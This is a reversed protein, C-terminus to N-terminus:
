FKEITKGGEKILYAKGDFVITKTSSSNKEDEMYTIVKFSPVSMECGAPTRDPKKKPFDFSHIGGLTCHSSPFGYGGIWENEDKLFFKTDKPADFSKEGQSYYNINFNKPLKCYQFGNGVEIKLLFM